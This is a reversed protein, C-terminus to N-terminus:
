MGPVPVITRPETSRNKWGGCASFRRSPDDSCARARDGKTSSVAAAACVSSGSRWHAVSSPTFWVNGGPTDAEVDPVPAPADVVDAIRIHEETRRDDNRVGDRAAFGVADVNPEFQRAPVPRPSGSSYSRGRPATRALRGASQEEFVFDDLNGVARLERRIVILPM